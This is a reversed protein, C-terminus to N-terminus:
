FMEELDPPFLESPSMEPFIDIILCAVCSEPQFFFFFTETAVALCCGLVRATFDSLHMLLTCSQLDLVGKM